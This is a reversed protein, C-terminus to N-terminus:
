IDIGCYVDQLKEFSAALPEFYYRTLHEWKEKTVEYNFRNIDEVQNLLEEIDTSCSEVENMIKQLLPNEVGNYLQAYKVLMPPMYAEQKTISKCFEPRGEMYEILGILLANTNNEGEEFLSDWARNGNILMENDILFIAQELMKAQKKTAM